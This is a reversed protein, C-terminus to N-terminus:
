NRCTQPLMLSTETRSTELYPPLLEECDRQTMICVPLALALGGQDM